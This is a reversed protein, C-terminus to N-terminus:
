QKAPTNRKEKLKKKTVSFVNLLENAEKHIPMLVDKKNIIIEEILELWFVTEDCEEVV